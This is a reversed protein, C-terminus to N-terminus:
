VWKDHLKKLKYDYESKLMANHRMRLGFIESELEKKKM